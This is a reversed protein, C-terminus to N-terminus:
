VSVVVGLDTFVEINKTALSLQFFNFCSAESSILCTQRSGFALSTAEDLIVEWLERPSLSVEKNM